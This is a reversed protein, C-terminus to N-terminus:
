RFSWAYLEDLKDRNVRSTAFLRRYGRSAYKIMNITKDMKSAIRDLAALPSLDNREIFSRKDGEIGLKIQELHAALKIRVAQDTDGAKERDQYGAIGPVIRVLRELKGAFDM